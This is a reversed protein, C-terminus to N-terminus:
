QAGGKPIQSQRRAMYAAGILVALLLISVLEFPLLYDTLTALGIAKVDDGTSPAFAPVDFSFVMALLFGFMALALLSGVLINVIGTRPELEKMKQTLMIGFMLLVLIGGVYLIIQVMSLFEGGAFVFLGAVGFLVAFLVFAGHVLNRTFALLIGSIATIGAFLFFIVDTATM